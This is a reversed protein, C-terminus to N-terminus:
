FVDSDIMQCEFPIGEFAKNKWEFVFNNHHSLVFGAEILEKGYISIINARNYGEDFIEILAEILEKGIKNIYLLEINGDYEKYILEFDLKSIRKYEYKKNKNIRHDIFSGSRTWKFEIDKNFDRNITEPTVYYYNEALFNFKLIKRWFVDANKNPFAIVLDGNFNDISAKILQLFLGPSTVKHKDVMGASSLGVVISKRKYLYDNIILANHGVIDGKENEAVMSTYHGNKNYWYDYRNWNLEINFCVKYLNAIGEIDRNNVKRIRM